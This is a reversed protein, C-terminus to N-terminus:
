AVYAMWRASETAAVRGFQIFQSLDKEIRIKYIEREPNIFTANSPISVMTSKIYNLMLRCHFVAVRKSAGGAPPSSIGSSRIQSKFIMAALMGIPSSTPIMVLFDLGRQHLDQALNQRFPLHHINVNPISKNRLTEMM